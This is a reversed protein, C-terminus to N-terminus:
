CASSGAVLFALPIAITISYDFLAPRYARIAEQVILHCLRRADGNRWAGHQHRGHRRLHHRSRHGRVAARLRAFPRVLCEAGSGCVLPNPHRRQRQRRGERGAGLDVDPRRAAGPLRPRRTRPHGRHGRNTRTPPMPTTSFSRRRAGREDRAQDACGTRQRAATSRLCRARKARSSYAQAATTDSAPIARWCRLGVSRRTSPAACGTTSSSPISIPPRTAPSPQGTAADTLKDSDNKIYVAKREASFM